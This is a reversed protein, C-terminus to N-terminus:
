CPWRPPQCISFIQSKNALGYALADRSRFPLIQVVLEHLHAPFDINTVLTSAAPGARQPLYHIGCFFAVCAVILGALLLNYISFRNQLFQLVFGYCVFGASTRGVFYCESCLHKFLREEKYQPGSFM